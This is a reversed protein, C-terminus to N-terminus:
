VISHAVEMGCYEMPHNDFDIKKYVGVEISVNALFTFIKKFLPTHNYEPCAIHALEHITVYCLLNEDHLENFTEKRKSRLCFVLEEGKNLSYSTYIDGEVNESLKIGHTTNNHLQKIYEEYEPYKSMNTYVYDIIKTMDRKLLALKDSALQKDPLDRVSYYTNDINSKVYVLGKKYKIAFVILLILIVLVLISWIYM